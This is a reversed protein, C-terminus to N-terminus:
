EGSCKFTRQASKLRLTSRVVKGERELPLVLYPELGEGGEIKGLAWVAQLFGM